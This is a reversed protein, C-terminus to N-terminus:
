LNFYTQTQKQKNKIKLSNKIYRNIKLCKLKEIDLIRKDSNKLLKQFMCFRFGAGIGVKKIVDFDTIKKGLIIEQTTSNTFGNTYSEYDDHIIFAHYIYFKEQNYTIRCIINCRSVYLDDICFFYVEEIKTSYYKVIKMLEDYSIDKIDQSTYITDIDIPISFITHLYTNLNEDNVTYYFDVYFLIINILDKTLFNEPLNNKIEEHIEYYDIFQVDDENPRKYCEVFNINNKKDTEKISKEVSEGQINKNENNTSFCNGM